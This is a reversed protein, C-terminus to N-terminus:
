DNGSTNLIHEIGGVRAMNFLSPSLDHYTLKCSVSEAVRLGFLLLSLVISNASKIKSLDVNLQSGSKGDIAKKFSRKVDIMDYHALEGELAIDNNQLEQIVIL